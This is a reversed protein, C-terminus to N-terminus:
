RDIRTILGLAELRGLIAKLQFVNLQLLEGYRREFAEQLELFGRPQDLMIVGLVCKEELTTDSQEDM